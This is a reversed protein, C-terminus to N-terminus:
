PRCRGCPKYGMAIAESVTVQIPNVMQSCSSKSHYREGGNTPIWVTKESRTSSGSSSGTSSSNDVPEDLWHWGGSSSSSSTTQPKTDEIPFVASSEDYFKSYLTEGIMNNYDIRINEVEDGKYAAYMFGYDYMMSEAKYELESQDVSNVVVTFVTCDENATMSEYHYCDKCLEDLKEQIYDHVSDLLADYEKQTLAFSTKGDMSYEEPIELQVVAGAAAAALPGCCVVFLLSLVFSVFRRMSM